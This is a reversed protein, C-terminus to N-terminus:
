EVFFRLEAGPEVRELASAQFREIRLQPVPPVVAVNALGPPVDYSATVTRNGQRLIANIKDGTDIHDDDAVLYRGTYIGRDIERLAIGERVGRIRVFARGHPTGRLTFQLRSGPNVGNDSTVQLSYVELSAPQALATAPLATFAVAAPALLCLAAVQNRLQRKMDFERLPVSGVKPRTCGPQQLHM